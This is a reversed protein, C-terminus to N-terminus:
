IIMQNRLESIEWSAMNCVERLLILSLSGSLAGDLLGQPGHPVPCHGTSGQQNSFINFLGGLFCPQTQLRNLKSPICAAQQKGTCVCKKSLLLVFARLGAFPTHFGLKHKAHPVSAGCFPLVGKRLWSFTKRWFPISELQLWYDFRKRCRKFLLDFRLVLKLSVLELVVNMKQLKTTQKRPFSQTSMRTGFNTRSWFCGVRVFRRKANSSLGQRSFFTGQKKKVPLFRAAFHNNGCVLVM